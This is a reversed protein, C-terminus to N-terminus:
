FISLQKNTEIELEQKIIAITLFESRSLKKKRGVNSVNAKKDILSTLNDILCYTEELNPIM